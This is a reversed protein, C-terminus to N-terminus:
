NQKTLKSLKNTLNADINKLKLNQNFLEKKEKRWTKVDKKMGSYNYLYNIIIISM